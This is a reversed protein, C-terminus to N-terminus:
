FCFIGLVCPVFALTEILMMMAAVLVLGITLGWLVRVKNPGPADEDVPQHGVEHLLLSAESLDFQHVLVRVPAMPDGFPKMWAGPAPRFEDLVSEIGEEQLRGQMLYATVQDNATALLVWEGGGGSAADPPAPTPVTPAGVRTSAGM